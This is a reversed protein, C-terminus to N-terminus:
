VFSAVFLFVRGLSTSATLSRSTDSHTKFCFLENVARPAGRDLGSAYYSSLSTIASGKFAVNPSEWVLSAGSTRVTRGSSSESTGIVASWHM